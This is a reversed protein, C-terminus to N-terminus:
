DPSHPSNATSLLKEALEMKAKADKLKEITVEVDSQTLQVFVRNGPIDTDLRVIALPVFQELNEERFTVRLDVTVSLQRLSPLVENAL